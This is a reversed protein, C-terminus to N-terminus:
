RRSSRRALAGSPVMSGYLRELQHGANGKLLFLHTECGCDSSGFGPCFPEVSKMSALRTAVSCEQRRSSPIIFAGRISGAATLRDVHWHVKRAPDVHRGLRGALGSMASGVYAYVGPPFAIRGLSGVDLEKEEALDIM